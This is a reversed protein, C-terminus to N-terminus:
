MAGIDTAAEDSIVDTRMEGTRVDREGLRVPNSQLVASAIERSPLFDRTASNSM